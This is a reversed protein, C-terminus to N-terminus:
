RARLFEANLRLNLWQGLTRAFPPVKFTRLDQTLRPPAAVSLWESM